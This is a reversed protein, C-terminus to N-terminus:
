VPMGRSALNDASPCDFCLHSISHEEYTHPIVPLPLMPMIRITADDVVTEINKLKETLAKPPILYPNSVYFYNPAEFPSSSITKPLAFIVGLLFHYDQGIEQLVKAIENRLSSPNFPTIRFDLIIIQYQNTTHQQYKTAIKKTIKKHYISVHQRLCLMSLGKVWGKEESLLKFVPKGTTSDSYIYACYCTGINAELFDWAKEIAEIGRTYSQVITVEFDVDMGGYDSTKQGQHDSRAIKNATIGLSKFLNNVDTEVQHELEKETLMDVWRIEIEDENRNIEWDEPLGM